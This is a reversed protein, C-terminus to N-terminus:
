LDEPIQAEYIEKNNIGALTDTLEFLTTQLDSIEFGEVDKGFYMESCYKFLKVVDDNLINHGMAADHLNIIINSSLGLMDFVQKAKQFNYWLSPTNQWIDFNFGGILM